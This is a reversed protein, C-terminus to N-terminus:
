VMAQRAMALMERLMQQQELLHQNRLEALALQHQLQQTHLAATLYVEPGPQAVAAPSAPGAPQPAAQAPAPPIQAPTEVAAPAAAVTGPLTTAPPPPLTAM